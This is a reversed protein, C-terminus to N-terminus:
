ANVTNVRAIELLQNKGINCACSGEPIEHHHKPHHTKHAEHATLTGSPHHKKLSCGPKPVPTYLPKGHLSSTHGNKKLVPEFLFEDCHKGKHHEDNGNWSPGDGSSSSSTWTPTAKSSGRVQSVMGGQGQGVSVSTPRSHPHRTDQDGSGGNGGPGRSETPTAAPITSFRTPTLTLTQSGHSLTICDQSSSATKPGGPIGVGGRSISPLVQASSSLLSSAMSNLVSSAGGSNGGNGLISSVLSAISSAPGESQSSLASSFSSLAATSGTGTPLASALSSLQSALSTATAGPNTSSPLKVISPGGISITSLPQTAQSSAHQLISSVLSQLSSGVSSPIASQSM